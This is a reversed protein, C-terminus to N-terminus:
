FYYLVGTLIAGRGNPVAAPRAGREL